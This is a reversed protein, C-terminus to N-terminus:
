AIYIILLCYTFHSNDSPTGSLFMMFLINRVVDSGYFAMFNLTFLISPYFLFLNVKLQSLENEKVQVSAELQRIRDDSQDNEPTASQPQQQGKAHLADLEDKYRAALEEAEFCRQAESELQEVQRAWEKEKDDM